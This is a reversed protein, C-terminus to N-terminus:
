NGGGGRYLSWLRDLESGPRYRNLQHRVKRRNHGLPQARDTEIGLSIRRATADIDLVVSEVEDGVSLLKSPHEIRRNWTMESIHILGEIGEELEVFAGYM